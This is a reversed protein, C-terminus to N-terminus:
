ELVVYEQRVTGVHIYYIEEACEIILPNVGKCMDQAVLAGGRPSTCEVYAAVRGTGAHLTKHGM